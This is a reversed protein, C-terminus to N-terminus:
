KTFKTKSEWRNYDRVFETEDIDSLPAFDKVDYCYDTNPIEEFLYCKYSKGSIGYGTIISLVTLTDGVQPDFPQPEFCDGDDTDNICIVKKM